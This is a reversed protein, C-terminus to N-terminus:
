ANGKSPWRSECFREVRKPDLYLVYTAPVAMFQWIQLTLAITSHFAFGAIFFWPQFRRMYLGIPASLELVITSYVLVDYLEMPFGLAAIRYALDSGWASIISYYLIEGGWWEPAFVKHIGTAFYVLMGQFAILRLPWFPISTALPLGARRRMAARLSYVEDSRSFCMLFSIQLFLRDYSAGLIYLELHFFYLYTLFYVVAASRTRWGLTFSVLSAVLAGYIAWTAWLPIPTMLWGLPGLQSLDPTYLGRTTFRFAVYPARPLWYILFFM